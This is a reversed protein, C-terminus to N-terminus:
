RQEEQPERPRQLPRRLRGDVVTQARMLATRRLTFDTARRLFEAITALQDEDFGATLEDRTGTSLGGFVEGLRQQAEPTVTLMQKRGDAPDPERTLFGAKLLRAVVGTIAGTTLGTLAALEAATMPGREGVLDLCKHDSPGLGLREAIAHHFLVTATSNRRALQGAILEATSTITSTSAM